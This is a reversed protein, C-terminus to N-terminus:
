ATRMAAHSETLLASLTDALIDLGDPSLVSEPHFQLSCLAPGRLAHVEGTVPDRSVEVGNAEDAPSIAAFTNYFGVRRSTGFLDIERQRGQNPSDKRIVDFGILGSLVQHGLCVSLLPIGEALVRRIIARLIAIKPDALDRPDGPGPGVLVLDHASPDMAEDFRRIVIEAGLANLQHGLMATFTDEADVLLIRVGLLGPVPRQRASPSRFWFEALPANRRRLASVVDPHTGLRAGGDSVRADLAGRFAGLVGATKAVTEAAEADPDSHRVLTAGVGIRVTGARDIEACRILIASDLENRGILAVVGSYHGRGGHEHRRLVHCASELPSGTVTPAFMTERLIDRPDHTSRGEILYETHSLRAMEKLYPGIIRGGGDCIRGLMKLEEDLVMYLEETEKRDGLFRLTGSVTPGSEPYRFTGSIPNMTVTQDRVSVHREPSAGVFVHGDTCVLFTWYAGQEGALLRRFVTLGVEPPLDPIRALFSRKIVFNAGTGQGIEEAIIRRVIEAYTEDDVDFREGTLSIHTDPLLRLVDARPLEVHERVSMALLEAGDDTCEFGREAIQRYPILALVEPEGTRVPVPLDALTAPRTVDGALM